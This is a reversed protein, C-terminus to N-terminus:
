VRADELDVKLDSRLSHAESVANAVHILKMWYTHWAVSTDIASGNDTTLEAAFAAEWEDKAAKADPLAEDITDMLESLRMERLRRLELEDRETM